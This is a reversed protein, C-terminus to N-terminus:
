REEFGWSLLIGRLGLWSCRSRSVVRGAPAERPAGGGRSRTLAVFWGAMLCRCATM